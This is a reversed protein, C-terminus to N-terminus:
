RRTPGAPGDPAPQGAALWAVFSRSPRISWRLRAIEPLERLVAALAFAVVRGHRPLRLLEVLVIRAAAGRPLCKLAFRTLNHHSSSLRRPLVQATMAAGVRHRLWAAPVYVSGWGRLWARWCLDLDEFDLFFTEDFGGLELLRKRRVLMCGGNAFVTPVTEDASGTQDLRYGPVLEHLLRGRRLTTHGHVLRTGGWDMQRPDAAFLSADASLASCLLALCRDELAVDNNSLLVYETTSLAAGSNYLHGLGLNPRELWRAGFRAAIERSRDTSGADAVIIEAPRESQRALSELCDALVAEGQYNAVVVSVDSV